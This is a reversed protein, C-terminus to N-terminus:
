KPPFVLRNTQLGADLLTERIRHNYIKQVGGHGMLINGQRQHLNDTWGILSNTTFEVVGNRSATENTLNRDGALFSQPKDERADLGVFYSVRSGDFGSIFNTTAPRKKDAPCVVVKPTDLENSMVQFYIFMQKSNAYSAGDFGNTKFHMPYVDGNDGAWMRFSLGVQKLNNVCNVQEWKEKNGGGSPLLLGALIILVVIVVLLEM